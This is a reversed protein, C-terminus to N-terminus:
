KVRRKTLRRRPPKGFAQRLASIGTGLPPLKVQLLPGLKFKGGSLIVAITFAVPISEFVLHLPSRRSIDRITFDGPVEQNALRELTFRPTRELEHRLADAARLLNPESSLENNSPDETFNVAAVYIARLLYLFESLERVSIPGPDAEILTSVSVVDTM